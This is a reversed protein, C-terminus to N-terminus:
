SRREPVTADLWSAVTSRREVSCAVPAAAGLWSAVAPGLASILQPALGNLDSESLRVGCRSLEASLADRLESTALALWRQVTARHVDFRESIENLELGERYRMLLLARQRPTLQRLASRMATAFATAYRARDLGREPQPVAPQSPLLANQERVHRRRESRRQDLAARAAVIRLWAALPGRGSFAALKPAPGSFLSVRLAANLEEVFSPEACVRAVGARLCASYGQEFRALAQGDGALCARVLALEGSRAAAHDLYVEM